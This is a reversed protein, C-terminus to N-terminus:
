EAIVGGLDGEESPAESPATKLEMSERLKQLLKPDVPDDEVTLNEREFKRQKAVFEQAKQEDYPHTGYRTVAWRAKVEELFQSSGARFHKFYFTGCTHPMDCCRMEQVVGNELVCGKAHEGASFVHHTGHAEVFRPRAFVKMWESDPAGTKTLSELMTKGPPIDGSAMLHWHGAVSIARDYSALMEPLTEHKRLIPFEDVDLFGIWEVSNKYQGIVRNYFAKQLDRCYEEICQIQYDIPEVSVFGEEIFPKLVGECLGKTNHLGFHIHGVGLVKNWHVWELLHYGAEEDTCLAALMVTYTPAELPTILDHDIPMRESDPTGLACAGQREVPEANASDASIATYEMPHMWDGHRGGGAEQLLDEPGIAQLSFQSLSLIAVWFLSVAKRM